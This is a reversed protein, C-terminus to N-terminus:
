GESEKIKTELKRRLKELEKFKSESKTKLLELQKDVPALKRVKPTQADRIIELTKILLEKASLRPKGEIERKKLYLIIRAQANLWCELIEALESDYQKFLEILMGYHFSKLEETIKEEDFIVQYVRKKNKRIRQILGSKELDILHRTLTASSFSTKELLEKFTLPKQFLLMFVKKRNDHKEWQPLKGRQPM